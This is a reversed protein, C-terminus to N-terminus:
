SALLVLARNHMYSYHATRGLHDRFVEATCREYVTEGFVETAVLARVPAAGLAHNAAPADRRAVRALARPRDAKDATDLVPRQAFLRKGVHEIKDLIRMGGHWMLALEVALDAGVIDVLPRARAFLARGRAVMTASSTAWVTPSGAHRSTPRPSASTGGTRPPCTCAAASGIPRPRGARPRAVALAIALDQAYAHLEPARYGGIYLLLRGVPEAAQRTYARLEDFTTYRRRELDTWSAPCCSAHIRHDAARLSGRYRRARRVGSSRRPRSLRRSAARGLSRARSRAPRRLQARRCFRRRRTRVRVPRLHAQPAAVARVDVRRSLQSAARPVPERLIPLLRRARADAAAARRPCALRAVGLRHIM